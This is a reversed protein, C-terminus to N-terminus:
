EGAVTRPRDRNAELERGWVSALCAFYPLRRGRNPGAGTGPSADGTWRTRPSGVTRDSRPCPGTVTAATRWLWGAPIPKSALTRSGTAPDLLLIGPGEAASHIVPMTRLFTQRMARGLPPATESLRGAEDESFQRSSRERYLILSGWHQGGATLFVRLEDGFGCPALIEKWRRSRRLDGETALGLSGALRRGNALHLNFDRGEKYEIELLRPVIGKKSFAPNEGAHPGAPLLTAPDVPIWCWAEFPVLRHIRRAAEWYFDPEGIDTSALRILDDAIRSRGRASAM